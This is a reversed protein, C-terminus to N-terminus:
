ASIPEVPTFHNDKRREKGRKEKRPIDPNLDEIKAMEEDDYAYQLLPLFTSTHV